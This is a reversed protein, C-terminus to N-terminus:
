IFYDNSLNEEWNDPEELMEDMFLETLGPSLNDFKNYNRRIFATLADIMDQPYGGPRVVCNKGFFDREQILHLTYAVKDERSMTLERLRFRRLIASAHSGFRHEIEEKTNNSIWIFTGNFIHQAPIGANKLLSDNARTWSVLRNKPNTETAAKMLNLFIALEGRSKSLIDCDDLILVDGQNSYKYLEQYLGAPSIDGKFYRINETPTEHSWGFERLAQTVYYSKGIGGPGSVILGRIIGGRNPDIFRETTAKIASLQNITNQVAPVLHQNNM